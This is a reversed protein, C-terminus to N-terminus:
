VETGVGYKEITKLHDQYEEEGMGSTRKLEDLEEKFAAKQDDVINFSGDTKEEAEPGPRQISLMKRTAGFERALQADLARAITIFYWSTYLVASLAFLLFGVGLAGIGVALAFWAASAPMPPVLAVAEAIRTVFAPATVWIFYLAVVVLTYKVLRPMFRSLSKLWAIPQFAYWTTLALGLLVQLTKHKAIFARGALFGM